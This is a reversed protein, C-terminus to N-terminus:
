LGVIMEFSEAVRIIEKKPLNNTRINYFNNNDFFYLFHTGDKSNYFGTHNNITVEELITNESDLTIKANYGNLPRQVILIYNNGNVLKFTVKLIDTEVNSIAYGEPVYKPFYVQMDMSSTKDEILEERVQETLQIGTHTQHTQFLLDFIAGNNAQAVFLACIIVSLSVAVQPIGKRTFFKKASGIRAQRRSQRLLKDMGKKFHESPQYDDPVAKRAAALVQDPDFAEQPINHHMFQEFLEKEDM